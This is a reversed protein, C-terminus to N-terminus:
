WVRVTIIEMLDRRSEWKRRAAAAAVLAAATLAVEEALAAM